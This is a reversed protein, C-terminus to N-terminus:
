LGKMFLALWYIASKQAGKSCVTIDSFPLPAPMSIKSIKTELLSNHAKTINNKHKTM